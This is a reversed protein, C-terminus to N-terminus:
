AAVQNRGALFYILGGLAHLFFVVLVWVIRQTGSLRPNMICDVLMWIWFVFLLVCFLLVFLGFLIGIGGSIM